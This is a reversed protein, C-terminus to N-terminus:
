GRPQPDLRGLEEADRVVVVEARAEGAPRGADLRDVSRALGLHALAVRALPEPADTFVVVRVGARKLRRVTANVNPDPRLHVPVNDEAFRELARRWDGVGGAAWADLEASAAGRDRSLSVPDLEAISAFRRAADALFAEWLPRTDGLAGDLDIAISETV